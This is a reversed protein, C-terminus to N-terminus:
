KKQEMEAIFRDILALVIERTEPALRDLKKKLEDGEHVLDVGLLQDVTLGHIAALKPLHVLTPQSQGLEWHQYTSLPVGMKKAMDQMTWKKRKRNERLNTALGQLYAKYAKDTEAM